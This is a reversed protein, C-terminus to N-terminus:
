RLPVLTVDQFSTECGLYSGIITLVKLMIIISIIASFTWIWSTPALLNVLNWLKTTELPYRTFFYLPQYILAPPCLVVKSREYTCGFGHVAMDAENM